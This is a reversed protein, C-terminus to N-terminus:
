QLSVLYAILDAAQKATLESALGSPMISKSDLKRTEIDAVDIVIKEGQTNILTLQTATSEHLLGTVVKGDELLVTHSQYKPEITRSPDALSEFLQAPSLKKGIHILDPGVQGGKQGVRHCIACQSRNRDFFWAEGAAAQGGIDAIEAYTAGLGLRRQRQDAPLFSEFLSSVLPDPFRALGQIVNLPLTKEQAQTRALHVALEMAWRSRDESSPTVNSQSNSSVESISALIREALKTADVAKAAESKSGPKPMGNIWEGILSVGAFDVERSGIHPMRGTSSSAMRFLLVSSLCDGPEILKGNKLGLGGKTPSTGIAKMAQEKENIKLSLEVAAGAGTQHCHACNAHLYSRARLDIPDNKSSSLPRSVCTEPEISKRQGNLTEIYGERALASWQSATGKEPQHLQEPTFALTTEPWPNHCQLCETRSHVRWRQRNPGPLTFEAGGPPALEADTQDENWVYSYGRWLRGDFHLVQTEVHHREKTEADAAQKQYSLTKAFVTGSPYHLRSNFMAVSGIPQQTDFVTAKERQPLALFHKGEAGDQWMPQNITFERVGDNLEQQAVNRFIGTQSLKRPFSRMSEIEKEYDPNTVLKFLSTGNFHNVVLPEGDRDPAFAIIRLQGSAVEQHPSTDDLPVSWVRGSIWDGFLYQGQINSLNSGRYVYGGTISAADSHSIAIRTPLIPGPGLPLEPQILEHGERASWGYNGGRQVRHVLEWKEWGVDGLWLEGSPPDIAIRWPNRFGFAWIEPRASPLDRFPNDPPIKYPQESTAGRVDIRLVSALLDSVDQGTKLRDPPSPDTADGTSFYLYGAQDFAMDCGNHGGGLWTIIPLESDIDIRPPIEDTVRFRSLRSGDLMPKGTKNSLVFCLYVFRNRAFDPDFVLSFLNDCGGSRTADFSKLSAKLDVALDASKVDSNHPFSYVKGGLECVFYRGADAQWRVHMPDQFKLEPFAPILALPLPSDPSGKVNSTTWASRSKSSEQGEEGESLQPFVWLLSVPLFLSGFIKTASIVKWTM